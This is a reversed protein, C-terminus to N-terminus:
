ESVSGSIQKDSEGDLRKRREIIEDNRKVVQTYTSPNVFDVKAFPCDMLLGSKRKPFDVFYFGVSNCEMMVNQATKQQVEAIRETVVEMVADHYFTAPVMVGANFGILMCCAAAFTFVIYHKYNM